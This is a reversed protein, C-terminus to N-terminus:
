AAQQVVPRRRPATLPEASPPPQGTPPHPLLAWVVKGRWEPRAGWSKSCAAVVILGRGAASTPDTTLRCPMGYSSDRVEIMVGTADMGLSLGISRCGTHTVANTVLESVVLAAADALEPRGWKECAERTVARAVPVSEPLGALTRWDGGTSEEPPAAARVATM